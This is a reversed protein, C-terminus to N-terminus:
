LKSDTNLFIKFIPEHEKNNGYYNYLLSTSVDKFVDFINNKDIQPRIYCGTRQSFNEIFPNIVSNFDKISQKDNKSSIYINGDDKIEYEISNSDLIQLFSKLLENEM